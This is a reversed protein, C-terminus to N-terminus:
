ERLLFDIKDKSNLLFEDSNTYGRDIFELKGTRGIFCVTPLGTIGIEFPLANKDDIWVKFKVESESFYDKVTKKIDKETEWLNVTAIVVDNSDAYNEALLYFGRLAEECPGCWSSWFMFVLAKGSLDDLKIKKGSLDTLSIDQLEKGLEQYKLKNIRDMRAENKLRILMVNFSESKNLQKHVQEFFELVVESDKSNKVALGAMDYATQYKGLIMCLKVVNEYLSVPSQEKYVELAESYKSYAEEYEEISMLIQGYQELIGAYRISNRAEWEKVTVYDPKNKLNNQKLEYLSINMLNKAKQIRYEDTMESFEDDNVLSFAIQAYTGSPVDMRKNLIEIVEDAKGAQLYGSVLASYIREKNNLGTFKDLYELVGESFKELSNAQALDAMFIEEALQSKPNEKAFSLELKESEDKKNLTKLARSIARVENENKKDYGSKIIKEVRSSYDKYDIKQLDLQLSTYGIQAPINDPYIDIENKLYLLAKKFDINRNINEPQNGLLTLGAKLYTGRLPKGNRNFFVDWFEGYNDDNHLDSSIKTILYVTEEPVTFSGFYASERSNYNLLFEFATPTADHENFAYVRLYLKEEVFFRGDGTYKVDIKGGVPSNQPSVLLEGSILRSAFLVTTFLLVFIKRLM